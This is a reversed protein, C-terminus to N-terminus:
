TYPAIALCHVQWERLSRLIASGKVLSYCFPSMAPLPCQNLPSSSM